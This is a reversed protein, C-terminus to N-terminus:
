PEAGAQAVALTEDLVTDDVVRLLEKLLTDDVDIESIV